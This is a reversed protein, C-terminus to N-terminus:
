FRTRIRLKSEFCGEDPNSYQANKSEVQEADVKGVIDAM